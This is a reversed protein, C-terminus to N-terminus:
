RCFLTREGKGEYAILVASLGCQKILQRAAVLMDAVERAHGDVALIADDLAMGFGGDGVEGADVAETGVGAFFDDAATEDEFVLRAADDVNHIGCVDLAVEVESHLQHFQTYRHHQCEIHHVLQLAVASGDADVAHLPHEAYGDDRDASHLVLANVLHHVVGYM